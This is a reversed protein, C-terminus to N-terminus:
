SLKKPDVGPPPAAKRWFEPARKPPGTKIDLKDQTASKGMSHSRPACLFGHQLAKNNIMIRSSPKYVLFYTNFAVCVLYFIFTRDTSKPVNFVKFQVTCSTHMTQRNRNKIRDKRGPKGQACTAANSSKSQSNSWHVCHIAQAERSLHRHWGVPWQRQRNTRSPRPGM